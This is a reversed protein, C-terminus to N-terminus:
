VKNINLLIKKLLTSFLKKEDESFAEFYKSCEKSIENLSKIILDEGSQTLCVLMCRKDNVDEKRCILERDQLRKLIKTMGGSSFITLDYLQTPSLVKGHTYLSALVDTESNLLDFKEKLFSEAHAFITKQIVAIPFTMLFVEPLEKSAVKDYFNTILDTHVRNKKM